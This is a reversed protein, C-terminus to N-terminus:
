WPLGCLDFEGSRPALRLDFIFPAMVDFRQRGSPQDAFVVGDFRRWGLGEYFSFNYPECFLLAVDTEGSAQIEEIARGMAASAFGCRRHEAHTVVGGIGAFRVKRGDWTGDRWHIGVHCVLQGAENWVLVRRASRSSILSQSELDESKGKLADHASKIRADLCITQFSKRIRSAFGIPVVKVLRRVHRSICSLNDWGLAASAQIRPDLGRM